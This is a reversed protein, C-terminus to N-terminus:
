PLYEALARVFACIEYLAPGTIQDSESRFGYPHALPDIMIPYNMTELNNRGPM